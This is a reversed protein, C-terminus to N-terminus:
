RKPRVPFKAKVRIPPPLPIKPPPQAPRPAAEGAKPWHKQALDVIREAINIASPPSGPTPLPTGSPTPKVELQGIKQSLWDEAKTVTEGIKTEPFKMEGINFDTLSKLKDVTEGASKVVENWQSSMTAFTQYGNVLWELKGTQIDVLLGHVPIKPGILPSHRVIDCAKIVNQRESAFMGFYENVNEPLVHREVGINKLRELLQMTTTKCVQCDTHGLIVIEKGGKVACALSLSRMTSSLPSTIINGANRLWVFHEEAIGLVEPILPNLRVDICTLAAIPLSDAFDSQRLSATTDGAVARNNAELIAEFLRMATM